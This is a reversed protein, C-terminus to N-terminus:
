VRRSYFITTLTTRLVASFPGFFSARLFLSQWFSGNHHESLWVARLQAIASEKTAPVDRERALVPIFGQCYHYLQIFYTKVPNQAILLM